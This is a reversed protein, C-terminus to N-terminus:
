RHSAWVIEEVSGGIVNLAGNGLGDRLDAIGAASGGKSYPGEEEFLQFEVVVGVVRYGVGVVESEEHAGEGRGDGGIRERLRRGIVVQNRAGIRRLEMCGAEFFDIAVAADVFPNGRVTVDEGTGGEVAGGHEGLLGDESEVWRLEELVGSVAM